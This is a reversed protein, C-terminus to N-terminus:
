FIITVKFVKISQLNRWNFWRLVGVVMLIRRTREMWVQLPCESFLFTFTFSQFQLKRIMLSLPFGFNLGKFCFVLMSNQLSIKLLTSQTLLTGPQSFMM